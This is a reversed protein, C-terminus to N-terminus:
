RAGDEREIRATQGDKRLRSAGKTVVMAEDSLGELIEIHADRRKGTKVACRKVTEKEATWVFTQGQDQIFGIHYAGGPGM